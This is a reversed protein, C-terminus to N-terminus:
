SSKLGNLAAEFKRKRELAEDRESEIESRLEKSVAERTSQHLRKGEARRNLIVLCALLIVLVVLVILEVMM